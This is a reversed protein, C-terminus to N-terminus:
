IGRHMVHLFVRFISRIVAARRFSIVLVPMQSDRSYLHDAIRTLLWDTSHFSRPGSSMRGRENGLSLTEPRKRRENSRPGDRVNHQQSRAVLLPQCQENPRRLRFSERSETLRLGVHESLPPSAQGAEPQCRGDLSPNATAETCGRLLRLRQM